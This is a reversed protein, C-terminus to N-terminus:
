RPMCAIYADITDESNFYKQLSKQPRYQKPHKIVETIQKAIDKASKPESIRGYGTRRVVERVGPMDSAVVPTGAFLAEVQVIGFSELPDISPLVLVDLGAYFRDRDEDSLYGTFIINEPYRKLYEDLRDKISGGAVKEYDGLLIVKFKPLEKKLYPVAQLLYEIGKEYVIRGVFGIRVEDGKLGLDKFFDQVGTVRGPMPIPPYVPKLKDAFRKMQSHEFYDRTNTIIIRSRALHLKMLSLSVATILRDLPAEGLYIDCHYTVVMKRKPVLLSALGGEAMPLHANVYDSRFAHWVMSLWFTPMIVGKGLSLWVPKRIVKVGNVTERRPLSTDYHSTIITVDYGRNVLAEAIWKAYVTLGSVYPTYYYLAILVKTKKRTLSMETM